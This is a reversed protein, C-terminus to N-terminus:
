KKSSKKAKKAKMAMKEAAEEKPNGMYKGKKYESMEEAIMAKKSMKKVPKKM